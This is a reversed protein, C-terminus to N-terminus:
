EPDAPWSLTSTYRKMGAQRMGCIQCRIVEGSVAWPIMPHKGSFVRFIVPRRCLGCWEHNAPMPLRYRKGAMKLMPPAFFQVRSQITADWCEPLRSRLAALAKPYTPLTGQAWRGGEVRQIFLRWPHESNSAQPDPVKEFWQKYIHDELLDTLRIQPTLAM